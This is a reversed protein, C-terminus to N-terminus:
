IRSCRTSIAASFDTAPCCDFAVVAKFFFRNFKDSFGGIKPATTKKM